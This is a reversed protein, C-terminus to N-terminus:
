RGCAEGEQGSCSLKIGRSRTRQSIPRADRLALTYIGTTATGSCLLHVEKDKKDEWRVSTVKKENDVMSVAVVDKEEKNAVGVAAADKEEEEAM